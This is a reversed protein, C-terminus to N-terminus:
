VVAAMTEADLQDNRPFPFWSGLFAPVFWPDCVITAQPCRILIGAHGLSTARM